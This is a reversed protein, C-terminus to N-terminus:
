NMMTLIKKHVRTVEEESVRQYSIGEQTFGEGKLQESEIKNFAGQYDQMLRKMEDFTLDTKVNAGLTNLIAQSRTLGKISLAKKAVGKLLEQQRQQRGYDGNPDDYRMRSYKLATEGTLEQHGRPFTKGDYTFEFSNTVEIGGVADVLNQIGQMNITMYYMIPVDLLEEVTDMAMSAGGFAYAHNIKDKTSHGIIEAYTDRPLSVLLSQKKKPNVAAVMMTDSRGKEVRGLNGTDVGLLLITFPDKKAIFEQQDTSDKKREVSEYTQEATFKADRYIKAGMGVIALVVVLFVGLLIFFLRKLRRVRKGHHSYHNRKMM